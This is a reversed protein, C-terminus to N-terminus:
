PRSPKSGTASLHSSLISIVREEIAREIAEDLAVQAAHLQRAAVDSAPTAPLETYGDEAYEQEATLYSSAEEEQAAHADLLVTIAQSITM